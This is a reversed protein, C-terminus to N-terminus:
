PKIGPIGPTIVTVPPPQAPGPGGGGGKGRGAVAAGVGVAGGVCALIAIVKGSGGKKAAATRPRAPASPQPVPLPALETVNTQTIIARATEGKYSATVRIEFRGALKNPRIRVSVQGKEDTLITAVQVDGPLTAGAGSSPLLFTVAAGPVPQERQDNVQVILDRATAARISNVAGEGGLIAIKLPGTAEEQAVVSAALLLCALVVAGWKWGCRRRPMVM